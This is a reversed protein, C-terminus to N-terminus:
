VHSRLTRQLEARAEALCKSILNKATGYRVNRWEAIEAPTYNEVYRRRLLEACPQPLCGLIRELTLRTIAEEATPQPDIIEDLEPPPEVVRHKRWYYRSINCVTGVLWARENDHSGVINPQNRIFAVFADHVVARVDHEPIRFKRAAIYSLVEFHADYAAAVRHNSPFQPAALPVPNSMPPSLVRARLPVSTYRDRAPHVLSVSEGERMTIHGSRADLCLEM